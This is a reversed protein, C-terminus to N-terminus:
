KSTGRKESGRRGGGWVQSLDKTTFLLRLTRELMKAVVPCTDRRVTEIGKADFTPAAQSPSEYAFGVYRKKSM